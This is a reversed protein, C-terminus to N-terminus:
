TCLFSLGYSATRDDNQGFINNSLNIQVHVDSPEAVTESLPGVILTPLNMNVINLKPVGCDCRIKGAGGKYISGDNGKLLQEHRTPVTSYHRAFNTKQFRDAATLKTHSSGCYRQKPESAKTIENVHTGLRKLQLEKSKLGKSKPLLGNTEEIRMIADQQCSLCAVNRLFKTRTAAAEPEHQAENLLKLSEQINHMKEDFCEQMGDLDSKELKAVLMSLVNSMQNKSSQEINAVKELAVSVGLSLQHKVADFQELSVKRHIANIDAKEILMENVDDRDIKKTSLLAYNERLAEVHEKLTDSVVRLNNYQDFSTLAMRKVDTLQNYLSSVDSSHEAKAESQQLVDDVRVSQQSVDKELDFIRQDSLLLKQDLRDIKALIKLMEVDIKTQIKLMEKNNVLLVGEINGNSQHVSLSDAQSPSPSPIASKILYNSIDKMGSSTALKQVTMKMYDLDTKVKIFEDANCKCETSLRPYNELNQISQQPSIKIETEGDAATRVHAATAGDTANEGSATKAAATEVFDVAKGTANGYDEDQKASGKKVGEIQEKNITLSDSSRKNEDIYSNLKRLNLTVQDQLELIAGETLQIRKSVSALPNVEIRDLTSPSKNTLIVNEKSKEYFDESSINWHLHKTRASGPDKIYDDISDISDDIRNRVVLVRTIDAATTTPLQVRTRNSYLPQKANQSSPQSSVTYESVNIASEDGVFPLMSDLRGCQAGQLEICTDNLKLQQVVVHLLAHLVNFNVIGEDPTGLALDVMQSINLQLVM